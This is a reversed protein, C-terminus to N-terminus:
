VMKNRMKEDQKGGDLRPTVASFARVCADFHKMRRAASHLLNSASPAFQTVETSMTSVALSRAHLNQAAGVRPREKKGLPSKRENM